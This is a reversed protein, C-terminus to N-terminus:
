PSGPIISTGQILVRIPQAFAKVAFEGGDLVDAPVRPRSDDDPDREWFEYGRPVQELVLWHSRGDAPTVPFAFFPLEREIEGQFVPLVREEPVITPRPFGAAAPYLYILTNPYRRFLATRVVIVLRM